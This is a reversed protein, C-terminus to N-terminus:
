HICCFAFMGAFILAWLILSGFTILLCGARRQSGDEPYHMDEPHM